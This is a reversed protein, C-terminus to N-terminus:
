LTTQSYFLTTTKLTQFLAQVMELVWYINDTVMITRILLLLLATIRQCIAGYSDINALTVSGAQMAM